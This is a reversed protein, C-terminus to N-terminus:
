YNEMEGRMEHVIKSLAKSFRIFNFLCLPESKKRWIGGRHQSGDTAGIFSMKWETLGSVLGEWVREMNQTLFGNHSGTILATQSVATVYFRTSLVPQAANLFCRIFGASICFFDVKKM